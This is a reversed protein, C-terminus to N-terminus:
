YCGIVIFDNLGVLMMTSDYTDYTSSKYGQFSVSPIKEDTNAPIEGLINRSKPKHPTELKIAKFGSLLDDFSNELDDKGVDTM